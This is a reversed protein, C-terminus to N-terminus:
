KAEIASSIQKVMAPSIEADPSNELEELESSSIGLCEAVENLSCGQQIRFDSLIRGLPIGQILRKHDRYICRDMVVEIGASAAEAAAEPHIVGEQLWVVRVKQDIAHRVIEPVFVSQRFVDVLDVNCPIHRLDPYATQNLIVKHGPNVPIVQYGQELLYTAIRHSPRNQRPSLGVVAVVQNEQLIKKLAADQEVGSSANIIPKM